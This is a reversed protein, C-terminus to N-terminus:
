EVVEDATFLLRPPVEIGLAKATKVNVAFEFKTPQQVPLDAPKEGKLIRALYGGAIEMVNLFDAGYSMLGGDEVYDRVDFSTPVGQRLALAAIQPRRTYFFSDPGFVMADGAHLGAIAAEIERDNSARLVEVKLGLSEGGAQMDRSFPVALDSTPNALAVYRSAKTAIERLLGLRKAVLEANLSTIGTANSGPRRLSEVLGLAVPDAGVGFVIPITSTAAKAAVAAPTSGVTAIVAVKMRILDAALEPLKAANGEAWRYEVKLNQGDVFGADALGKHL